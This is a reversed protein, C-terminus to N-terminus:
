LPIMFARDSQRGSAWPGRPAPERPIHTPWEILPHTTVSIAAPTTEILRVDCPYESTSGTYAHIRGNRPTALTVHNHGSLILRARPHRDLLANLPDVYEPAPDHIPEPLGSLDTPIPELGEHTIIIAPRDSNKSLTADLWALDAPNIRANCPTQSSWCFRGNGQADAWQPNFAILDVGDLQAFYPALTFNRHQALVSKWLAIHDVESSRALDHNGLCMYIPCPFDHFLTLFRSIEADSATHTMDGGLLFIDVRNNIIFNRLGQAIAAHGGVYYTQFHFDGPTAELHFDTIFALKM